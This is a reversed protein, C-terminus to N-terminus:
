NTASRCKCDGRRHRRLTEDSLKAGRAHLVRVIARGLFAPDALASELDARDEPSLGALITGVTCVGGVARTAAAIEELLSVRETGERHRIGM